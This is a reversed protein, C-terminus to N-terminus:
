GHPLFASHKWLVSVDTREGRSRFGNCGRLHFDLWLAFRLAKLPQLTHSMLM